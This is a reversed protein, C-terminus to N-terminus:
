QMALLSAGVCCLFSGVHALKRVVGHDLDERANFQGFGRGEILGKFHGRLLKGALSPRLVALGGIALLCAGVPILKIALLSAVVCLCL